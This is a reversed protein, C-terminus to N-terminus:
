CNLLYHMRTTDDECECPNTQGTKFTADESISWGHDLGTPLQANVAAEVEENTLSKPACASCCVLGASYVIVDKREQLAVITM